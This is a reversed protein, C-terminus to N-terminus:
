YSYRREEDEDDLATIDVLEGDDSLMLRDRKAKEGYQYRAEELMKKREEEEIGIRTMQAGFWVGHIMISVLLLVGVTFAFEVSIVGLIAGLILLPIAIGFASGHYIMRIIPKAQRDVNKQLQEEDISM